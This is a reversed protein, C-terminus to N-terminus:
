FTTSFSADCYGVTEDGSRFQSVGEHHFYWRNRSPLVAFSCMDSLNTFRALERVEGTVLNQRVVTQADRVYDVWPTGDVNEAVGWFAWSECSQHAAIPAITLATVTPPVNGLIWARTGQTVIVRDPGAFIGAERGTARDLFITTPLAIRAGLNLAADVTVVTDVISTLENLPTGNSALSFVQNLRFAGFLGDYRAMPNETPLPSLTDSQFAGTRTDGTYFVAGDRVAIGGRDDGTIMNHETALCNSVGLSRVAFPTAAPIAACRGFQCAFGSPCAVGCAGCNAADSTLNVCTAGCRTTGPECADIACTGGACRAGPGCFRGCAGCNAADTTLDVCSDGCLTLGRGCSIALCRGRLCRAGFGCSVGCGGCNSPDNDLDACVDGCARFPTPCDPQPVDPPLTVDPPPPVDPTVPRDPAVPVDPTVPRDPAVPVDPSPPADPTPPVDGADTRYDDAVTRAGCATSVAALAVLLLVRPSHM